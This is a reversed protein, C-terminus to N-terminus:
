RSPAPRSRRCATTSRTPPRPPPAPGAPRRPRTAAYVALDAAFAQDDAALAQEYKARTADDESLAHNLVDRRTREMDIEVKDIDRVPLLGNTYLRDAAENMASMRQLAAGAVLVAVIAMLFVASAIKTRLSLNALVRNM